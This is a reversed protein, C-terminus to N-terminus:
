TVLSLSNLSRTLGSEREGKTNLSDKTITATTMLKDVDFNHTVSTVLYDGSWKSAKNQTAIHASPPFDITIVEGAQLSCDGALSIDFTRSLLFNFFSLRKPLLKQFGQNKKTKDNLVLFQRNDEDSLADVYDSSNIDENGLTNHKAPTHEYTINKFNKGYVDVMKTHNKYVGDILFQLPSASSSPSVGMIATRRRGSMADESINTSRFSYKRNKPDENELVNNKILEQINRFQYGNTTEFFAFLSNEYTPGGDSRRGLTDLASFPPQGPIILGEEIGVSTDVGFPRKRFASNSFVTGWIKDGNIRNNFVNQAIDSTTGDFAQNVNNISSILQEKTVCELTVLATQNTTSHEVGVRTVLFVLDIGSLSEPTEINIEVYEQGQLGVGRNFEENANYADNFIVTAQVSGNFIGQRIEASVFANTEPLDLENTLTGSGDVTFLRIKNITYRGPTWMGVNLEDTM